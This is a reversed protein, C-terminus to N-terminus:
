LPCSNRIVNKVTTPYWQGGRATPIGRTNLIQSIRSLSNIGTDKIEQIIKTAEVAFIRANSRMAQNGLKQAYPLNSVNGLKAGQEKRVALAAKTRDSILQREKEAVAAHIHLMFNDVNPGLDATVFKIKRTMLTSIFAVNRSLRDLKAVLVTYGHQEAKLLTKQLIPRVANGKGSKVEEIEEVINCNHIRAFNNCIAKQAELGLGSHKQKTTSVRYYIIVDM